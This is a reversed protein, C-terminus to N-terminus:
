DNSTGGEKVVVGREREGDERLHCTASMCTFNTIGVKLRKILKKTVQVDHLFNNLRYGLRIRHGFDSM